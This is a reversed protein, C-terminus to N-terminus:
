ETIGITLKFGWYSPIETLTQLYVTSPNLAKQITYYNIKGTYNFQYFLNFRMYYKDNLDYEINFNPKFGVAFINKTSLSAAGPKTAFIWDDDNLRTSVRYMSISCLVGGVGIRLKDTHIFNLKTDFIDLQYISSRVKRVYANGFFDNDKSKSRYAMYSFNLGLSFVENESLIGLGFTFGFHNTPSRLEDTIWPRSSNYRDIVQTFRHSFNIGDILGVDIQAKMQGFLNSSM